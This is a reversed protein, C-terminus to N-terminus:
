ASQVNLKETLWCLYDDITEDLENPLHHRADELYYVSPRTYLKELVPINHKADVTRDFTGQLILPSVPSKIKSSEIRKIWRDMALVWQIPLIDSSLPDNHSLELFSKKRSNRTYNRPLRSIFLKALQLQLRGLTWKWPRVLPASLIVQQFPSAKHHAERNNLCDTLIACGTSQGFAHWPRPLNGGCLSLIDELILTYVSFDPITAPKGSSLGHGPLDYALVNFGQELLFRIIRAFLGVHDYYGHLLFFTGRSDSKEFLHCAVKYNCSDISGMFHRVDALKTGFNIGYFDFYEKFDPNQDAHSGRTELPFVLPKIQEKLNEPNLMPSETRSNPELSEKIRFPKPGKM